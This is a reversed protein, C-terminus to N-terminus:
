ATAHRLGKGGQGPSMKELVRAQQWIKQKQQQRRHQRQQRHRDERVM